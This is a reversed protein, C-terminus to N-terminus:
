TVWTRLVPTRSPSSSLISIAPLADRMLVYQSPPGHSSMSWSHIASLLCKLCSVRFKFSQTLSEDRGLLWYRSHLLSVIRIPHVSSYPSQVLWPSRGPPDSNLELLISHYDCFPRIQLATIGTNMSADFFSSVSFRVFAGFGAPNEERLICCDGQIGDPHPLFRLSISQLVSHSAPLTATPLNASHFGCDGVHERCGHSRCFSSL